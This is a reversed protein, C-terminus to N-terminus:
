AVAGSRQRALLKRGTSGVLSSALFRLAAPQLVSRHDIAWAERYLQCVTGPPRSAGARRKVIRLVLARMREDLVIRLQEPDALQAEFRDLFRRKVQWENALSRL